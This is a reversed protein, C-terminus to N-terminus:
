GLQEQLATFISVGSAGTPSLDDPTWERAVDFLAGALRDM